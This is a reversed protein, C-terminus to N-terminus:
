RVSNADCRPDVDDQMPVDHKRFPAVNSGGMNQSPPAQRAETRAHQPVVCADVTAAAPPYYSCEFSCRSSLQIGVM